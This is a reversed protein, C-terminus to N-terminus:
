AKKEQMDHLLGVRSRLAEMKDKARAKDAERQISSIKDDAEADLVAGARRRDADEVERRIKEERLRFEERLENERRRATEADSLQAYEIDHELLKLRSRHQAEARAMELDNQRTFNLTTKLFDAKDEREQLQRRMENLESQRMLSKRELEDLVRVQYEGRDKEDVFKKDQLDNLIRTVEEYQRVAFVAKDKEDRLSIDARAGDIKLEQERGLLDLEDQLKAMELDQADRMYAQMDVDRALDDLRKKQELRSKEETIDLYYEGLQRRQADYRPHVFDFARVSRFAIGMPRLFGGIVNALEMDFRTQLGTDCRLEEIGCQSVARRLCVEAHRDLARQLNAITYVDNRGLLSSVFLAINEIQVIVSVALDIELSEQTSLGKLRFSVELDADKYIVAQIDEIKGFHNLRSWFSVLPLNGPEEVVGTFQGDKYVAARIGPELVLEKSMGELDKARVRAAFM